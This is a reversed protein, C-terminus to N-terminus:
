VIIYRSKIKNMIKLTLLMLFQIQFCLIIKLLMKINYFFSIYFLNRFGNNLEISLNPTLYFCYEFM